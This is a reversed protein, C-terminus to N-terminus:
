SWRVKIYFTAIIHYGDYQKKHASIGQPQMDFLPVWWGTRARAFICGYHPNYKLVSVTTETYQFELMMSTCNYTSCNTNSHGKLCSMVIVDYHIRHRRLVGAERNNVCSNIWACILSFMLAGRWQGKHPSNVPCRHIGRVFPWYRSFHKWKIVDDHDPSLMTVNAGVDLPLLLM